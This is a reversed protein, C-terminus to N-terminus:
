LRVNLPEPEHDNTSVNAVVVRRKVIEEPLTVRGEPVRTTPPDNALM